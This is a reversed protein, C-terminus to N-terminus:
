KSNTLQLLFNNHTLLLAQLLFILPKLQVEKTSGFITEQNSYLTDKILRRAYLCLLKSLCPLNSSHKMLTDKSSHLIEPGTAEQRMYPPDDHTLFIKYQAFPTM